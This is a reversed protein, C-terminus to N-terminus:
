DTCYRKRSLDALSLPQMQVIAIRGALSESINRMLEYKQSGTLIVKKSIGKRKNEDIFYKLNLFIKQLRQIEDLIFKDTGEFLFTVPDDNLAMYVNSNDLTNFTFDNFENIILTSKGVQRSGTLLVCDYITLLQGIKDCIDRKYYM